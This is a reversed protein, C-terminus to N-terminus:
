PLMDLPVPYVSDGTLPGGDLSVWLDTNDHIAEYYSIKSEIRHIFKLQDKAPWDEWTQLSIRMVEGTYPLDEIYERMYGLDVLNQERGGTTRTSASAAAPDRSITAAVSKLEELFDRPSLVGEEATELVKKLVYQLDSLQDRTLLVRVELTARAPDAIDRDVLWANFVAPIQGGEAEQLYRMRLAYGLTSVKRQFEALPDDKPEEPIHTPAVGKTAEGVQQTIERTFTELVRGFDGVSGMQVPYYFEGIGPYLSLRQYQDAASAHDSAGASTKLHLVWISLGKDRALQGVGEASLGTTGLPDHSPRAGADTILVVYRAHYGTWDIEEIAEKVGAYADEVFGKSSVRAPAVHNVHTFFKRPDTGQGLTAYTRTLYELQPVAELNDRYAVLGFSVKNLLDKAEISNYVRRVVERTRDIYPGMSVTADIVFVIASRYDRPASGSVAGPQARELPLTTVKLMLGQENGIYVDEHELIPVIYFDKLVDVYAKPQIAVVPSDSSVEGGAAKEYLLQYGFIDRSNILSKLSRRDRFMLARDHGLPDKFAVTLTQKWDVLHRAAIWGIAGKHRDPGVQAWDQAEVRQRQYVYLITFPALRYKRSTTDPRSQLAAGPLTLVRQYLSRKGPMLLPESKAYGTTGGVVALLGLAASLLVTARIM